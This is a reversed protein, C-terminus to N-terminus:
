PRENEKTRLKGVCTEYHKLGNEDSMIYYYDEETIEIGELIGESDEDYIMTEGQHLYLTNLILILNNYYKKESQTFNNIINIAEDKDYIEYSVGIVKRWFLYYLIKNLISNNRLIHWRTCKLKTCEKNYDKWSHVHKIKM